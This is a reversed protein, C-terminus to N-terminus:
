KIAISVAKMTHLANLAIFAPKGYINDRSSCIAHHKILGQAVISAAQCRKFLCRAKHQIGYRSDAWKLLKNRKVPKIM